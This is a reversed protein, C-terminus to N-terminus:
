IFPLPQTQAAARWLSLVNWKLTFTVDKSVKVKFTFRRWKWNTDCTKKVVCGATYTFVQPLRLEAAVALGDLFVCKRKLLTQTSVESTRVRCSLPRIFSKSFMSVGFVESQPFTEPTWLDAPPQDTHLRCSWVLRLEVQQCRLWM